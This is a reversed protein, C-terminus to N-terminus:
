VGSEEVLRPTRVRRAPRQFVAGSPNHPLVVTRVHAFGQDRYYQQLKDNTTWVDVRLWRAGENAARTGAWDLLEAGLGEGAYARAVTAKHAYLASEAREAPTWLEPKAWRNLTITPHRRQHGLRDAPAQDAARCVSQHEAARTAAVSDRLAHARLHRGAVVPADVLLCKGLEVEVAQVKTARVVQPVGERGPQFVGADRRPDDILQHAVLCAPWPELLAARDARAVAV